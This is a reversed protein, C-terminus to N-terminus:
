CTLKRGRVRAQKKFIDLLQINRSRYIPVKILKLSQRLTFYKLILSMWAYLACVGLGPM